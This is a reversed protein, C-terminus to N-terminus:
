IRLSSFDSPISSVSIGLPTRQFLIQSEYRFLFLPPRLRADEEKGKESRFILEM